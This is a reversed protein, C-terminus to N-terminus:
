KNGVAAMQVYAMLCLHPEKEWALLFADQKDAELAMALVLWAANSPLEGIYQNPTHLVLGKQKLLIGSEALSANLANAAEQTLGAPWLANIKKDPLGYEEFQQLSVQASAEDSLLLDIPRHILAKLPLHKSQVEDPAALVIWVANETFEAAQPEDNFATSVFVHLGSPHNELWNELLNLDSFLM